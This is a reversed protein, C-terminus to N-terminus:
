ASTGSNQEPIGAEKCALALSMGQALQVEIQRLMLAWWVGLMLLHEHIGGVPTAESGWGQLTWGAERRACTFGSYSGPRNGRGCQPSPPSCVPEWCHALSFRGLLCMYAHGSLGCPKGATPLPTSTILLWSLGGETRIESIFVGFWVLM